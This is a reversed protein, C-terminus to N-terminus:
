YVPLDPFSGEYRNMRQLNPLGMLARLFRVEYNQPEPSGGSINMMGSTDWTHDYCGLAHALEHRTIKQTVSAIHLIEANLFLEARLPVDRGWNEDPGFQPVFRMAGAIISNPPWM